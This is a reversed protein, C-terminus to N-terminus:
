GRLTGGQLSTRLCQLTCEYMWLSRLCANVFFGFVSIQWLSLSKCYAIQNRRHFWQHICRCSHISVVSQAKSRNGDWYKNKSAQLPLILLRHFYWPFQTQFQICIAIDIQIWNLKGAIAWPWVFRGDMALLTQKSQFSENSTESINWVDCATNELEKIAQKCWFFLCGNLKSEVHRSVNRAQRKTQKRRFFSAMTNQPQVSHNSPDGSTFPTGRRESLQKTM